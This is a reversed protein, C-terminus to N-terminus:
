YTYVRSPHSRVFVKCKLEAQIITHDAFSDTALVNLVIDVRMYSRGVRLSRAHRTTCVNM